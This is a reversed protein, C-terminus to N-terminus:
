CGTHILSVAWRGFLSTIDIHGALEPIAFLVQFFRVRVDNLPKVSSAAALHLRVDNSVTKFFQITCPLEVRPGWEEPLALLPTHTLVM